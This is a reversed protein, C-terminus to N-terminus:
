RPFVIGYSGFCSLESLYSTALLAKDLSLCEVNRTCHHALYREPYQRHINNKMFSYKQYTSLLLSYLAWGVWCQGERLTLETPIQTFTLGLSTLSHCSCPDAQSWLYTPQPFAWLCTRYDNQKLSNFSSFRFSQCKIGKALTQLVPLRHALHIQGRTRKIQEICPKLLHRLLTLM